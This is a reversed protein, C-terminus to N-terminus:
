PLAAPLLVQGQNAPGGERLDSLRGDLHAQRRDADLRAINPRCLWADCFVPTSRVQRNENDPAEGEEEGSDDKRQVVDKFWVTLQTNEQATVARQWLFEAWQISMPQPVRLDLFAFHQEALYAQVCEDRRSAYLHEPEDAKREPPINGPVMLLFLPRKERNRREELDGLEKKSATALQQSRAKNKQKRRAHHAKKKQTRERRPPTTGVAPDFCTLMNSEVVAHLNNERDNTTAQTYNWHITYGLREFQPDRHALVVTGVTELYVDQPPESILASWIGQLKGGDGNMDVMSLFYIPTVRTGKYRVVPGRIYGNVYAAYRVMGGRAKVMIRPLDTREVFTPIQPTMHATARPPM